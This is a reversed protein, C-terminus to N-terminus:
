NLATCCWYRGKSDAQHGLFYRGDNVLLSNDLVKPKGVAALVGEIGQIRAHGELLM